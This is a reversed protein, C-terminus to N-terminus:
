MVVCGAQSEQIRRREQEECAQRMLGIFIKEHEAKAKARAAELLKQQKATAEKQIQVQRDREKQAKEEARAAERARQEQKERKEELCNIHRKAEEAQARAWALAEYQKRKSDVVKVNVHILNDMQPEMASLRERWDRVDLISSDMHFIFDEFKSEVRCKLRVAESIFDLPNSTREALRNLDNAFQQQADSLCKSIQIKFANTKQDNLCKFRSYEQSIKLRIEARSKQELLAANKPNQCNDELFKSLCKLANSEFKEHLTAFCDASVPRDALGM